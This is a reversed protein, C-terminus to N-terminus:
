PRIISVTEDTRSTAPSVVHSYRIDPTTGVRSAMRRAVPPPTPAPKRFPWFGYKIKYAMVGIIAIVGVAYTGYEEWIPNELLEYM